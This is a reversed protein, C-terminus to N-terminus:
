KMIYNVLNMLLPVIVYDIIMWAFIPSFDFMSSKFIRTQLNRIPGLIPETVALLFNYVPNSSSRVFFSILVRAWILYGVIEGMIRIADIVIQKYM